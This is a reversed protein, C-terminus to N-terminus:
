KFVIIYMKCLKIDEFNYTIIDEGVFVRCRYWRKEANRFKDFRQVWSLHIVGHTHLSMVRSTRWLSFTWLSYVCINIIVCQTMFWDYKLPPRSRWLLSELWLVGSEPLWVRSGVSVCEGQEEWVPLWRCCRAATWREWWCSLCVSLVCFCNICARLKRKAWSKGCFCLWLASSCSKMNPWLFYICYMFLVKQAVNQAAM